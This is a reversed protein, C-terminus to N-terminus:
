SRYRSLHSLHPAGRVETWYQVRADEDIEVAGGYLKDNGDKRAGSIWYPAATEADLCNYKFGSKTKRFGGGLM